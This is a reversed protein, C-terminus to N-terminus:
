DGLLEGVPKPGDIRACVSKVAVLMAVARWCRL